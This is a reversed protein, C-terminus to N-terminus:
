NNKTDGFGGNLRPLNGKKFYIEFQGKIRESSIFSGLVGAMLIKIIMLENM